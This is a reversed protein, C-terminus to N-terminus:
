WGDGLEGGDKWLHSERNQEGDKRAARVGCTGQRAEVGRVEMHRIAFQLQQSYVAFIAAAREPEKEAWQSGPAYLQAKQSTLDVGRQLYLCILPSASPPM